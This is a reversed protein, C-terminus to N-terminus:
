AVEVAESLNTTVNSSTNGLEGHVEFGNASKFVNNGVKEFIFQPIRKLRPLKHFRRLKNLEEFEAIVDKVLNCILDECISQLQLLGDRSVECDCVKKLERKLERQSIM